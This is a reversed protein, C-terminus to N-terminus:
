SAECGCSDWKMRSQMVELKKSSFVLVGCLVYQPGEMLELSESLFLTNLRVTM